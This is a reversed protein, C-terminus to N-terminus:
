HRDQWTHELVEASSRFLTTPVRQFAENGDAAEVVDTTGMATLARIVIKRMVGSDDAVLVKMSM